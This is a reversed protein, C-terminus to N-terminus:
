KRLSFYSGVFGAVAVVGGLSIWSLKDSQQLYEATVLTGMLAAATEGGIILSKKGADKVIEKLETM